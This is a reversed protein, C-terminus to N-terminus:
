EYKMGKSGDKFYAFSIPKIEVIEQILFYSCAHQGAMDTIQYGFRDELWDSMANTYDEMTNIYPVGFVKAYREKHFHLYRSAGDMWIVAKPKINNFLRELEPVWEGESLRKITMFPFDLIYIDGDDKGIVNHADENHVIAKGKFAFDLQAVCGPDIDYILHTNPQLVGQAVTAFVGVGGFPEVVKVGQPLKNMLHEVCLANKGTELYRDNAYEYYSKAKSGEIPTPNGELIPLKWKGCILATKTTPTTTPSTM